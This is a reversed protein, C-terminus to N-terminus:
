LNLISKLDDLRGKSLPISTKQKDDLKLSYSNRTWTVVERVRQLNVLYSRHCRFFGFHKLKEELEILTQSSPFKEGRISLNSVGHESEIYDIEFPDFLLIKDEIKAPIKEIKIVPSPTTKDDSESDSSNETNIESLGNKDISFARGALMLVDKYSSCTCLFTVGKDRLEQINELVIKTSDPDMNTLPEQFLFIRLNKLRERAFSLRKKQHNTLKKIKMTGIDLLGLKMMVDKYNFTSSLVKSFFNLYEDITLNEYYGEEHFVVGVENPRSKIFDNSKTNDIYVEGKGPLERAIILDIITRSIDISCEICGLEGKLLELSIDNICVNKNEKFLNNVTLM